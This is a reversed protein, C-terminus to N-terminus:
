RARIAAPPAASPAFAGFRLCLVPLLLLNLTTSSVLGGLIVVAMPGDIEGGPRDGSLAIPLLAFGTVLATMLIPVVRESAGRLVTDLGWPEGDEEVLRRYHSVMMIANRLTIGFLTVFGVLSGLSLGTSAGLATAAAVALVGGALAFAGTAALLVVNRWHGSVLSLLVLIGLGSLGAHLLLEREAESRAQAVGAVQLSFGAPLPVDRRLSAEAEAVFSTVDRGSVNCTVTQRRRGDERFIAERASGPRIEAVTALPLLAGDRGRVDLAALVAPDRRSREDLIVVVDSVREAEHVQAVVSGEYATQIQDLVEAPRLGFSALRDRRLEISIRPAGPSSKVQVDVAGAVGGLVRAIERARADLVDLDEGYLNVVVAATEGAISEGIRDGLFTLVESQIGPFGALLERVDEMASGSAAAGPRLEVHLESRHPGWTDEGQEARGAQQEVSEVEPRALLAESIRAGIRLMEPLSTGPAASVQLVLHGERFDPLFEGGLLPVIAAAGACAVVAGVFVAVGHAHARRLLRRYRSRLWTQLRPEERDRADRGLLLLCLAPTVTLAVFLSATVALLYSLALPAFFKGQLGSLTLLPIFVLMVSLTAYVVAGRVELSADLVVGFAGRPEPRARNERLRRVINEVDIIADDVVEGLAIALGGLSMTNLTIGLRELVIVAALLSLPIASLSIVATRLDRLFLLLVVVVLAAGILLSLRINALSAEIFDAPRHLRPLLTIGEHQLVPALEALAEELARTVELTNAGYQASLTLLVGPRGQVLADGFKPAPADTVTAVDELRLPAGGRSDIVAQGLAHATSAEGLSALTIRQNETELFGAGRNATAERAAAVVDPLGLAHARLRAPDVQIQLQRVEGGFLNVRAVGPVMLLRPRVTWEAFTRLAMPSLTESLLGIKLVDMTASTLPSMRPSGVGQPLRASLDALRETLLQRATFVQTGEEFVVTVVSLGQISESRLARTGGLGGLAAELPRTVLAEVQEPAFGAAETQIVVEPPVFDPFVDLRTQLTSYVGYTVVACALVVAIGPHRLSREILSQLM